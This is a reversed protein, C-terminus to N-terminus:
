RGTHFTRAWTADGEFYERGDENADAGRSCLRVKNRYFGLTSPAPESHLGLRGERGERLSRGVAYRLLEQGTARFVQQDGALPRNWPAAAVYEVYLLDPLLSLPPPRSPMSTVMVAEIRGQHTIAVHEVGTTYCLSDDATKAAWNWGADPTGHKKLRPVWGDLVRQVLEADILRLIADYVRTGDVRLLPVAKPLVPHPSAPSAM